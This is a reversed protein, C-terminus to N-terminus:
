SDEPPHIIEADTEGKEAELYGLITIDGPTLELLFPCSLRGIFPDEGRGEFWGGDLWGIAIYQNDEFHEILRPAYIHQGEYMVRSDDNVPQYDGQLTASSYCHLGSYNGFGDPRHHGMASFFLYYHGEHCVLQPTEMMEFTGPSLLPDQLNWHLLDDSTALGIAANYKSEGGDRRACLVMVYQETAEDWHVSPDRWNPISDFNCAEGEAAACYPGSPVLIPNQEYKEWNTLDPSTAVGISQGWYNRHNRGTYFLYYTDDKKAISGTWLALDDWSGEPGPKLATPQEQWTVLDQSTAHGIEAQHHREDPTISADSQLHFMHWEEGTNWFWADWMYKDKPAYVGGACVPPVFGPQKPLRLM